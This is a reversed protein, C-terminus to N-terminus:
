FEGKFGLSIQSGLNQYNDVRAHKPTDKTYIEAVQATNGINRITVYAGFRRTIRYEASM